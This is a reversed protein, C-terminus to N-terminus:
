KVFIIILLVLSVVLSLSSISLALLTRSSIIKSANSLENLQVAIKEILDAQELENQELLTIRKDLLELSVKHQKGGEKSANGFYKNVSSFIKEGAEVIIPSYKLIKDWPIISLITLVGM